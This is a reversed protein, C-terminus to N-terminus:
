LRNRISKIISKIQMKHIQFSDKLPIEILNVASNNLCKKLIEGLDQNLKFYKIGLAESFKALNFQGTKLISSQGYTSLHGLRILGLYNDCFVIVTLAIQNKIATILEMGSMIFGGDGLLVVVRKDPNAMKAGISAPIGFGMSQFDSPIIFSRPTLVEFYKRAMMQHMGSDTVLISDPPMSQRLIKFFTSLDSKHAHKLKPEIVNQQKTKKLESKWREKEERRWENKRKELQGRSNLLANLFVNVEAVISLKAPYNAELVEPSADIHILKESPIKLEFGGTSNHSFKCGLALILDCSDLLSNLVEVEGSIFDGCIFLSHNEPIIGRGSTTSIVLADLINILETVQESANAAGQGLFLILRKSLRILKLAKQIKQDDLNPAQPSAEAFSKININSEKTLISSNIEILVPGPEGTKATFYAKATIEPLDPIKNIIFSKKIIPKVIESEDLHQLKFNKGPLDHSKIIIYLLGASDLSAEAIGPLTYIFGPGPITILTPINGSSRYYGNAMFSATLESTSITTQISSKRLAKLVPYNQSGPYGFVHRIGLNELTKVLLDFGKNSERKM